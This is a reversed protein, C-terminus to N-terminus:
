PEQIRTLTEASAAAGARADGGSRSGKLWIIAPPSIQEVIDHPIGVRELEQMSRYPRGGLIKRAQDPTIGPLTELEELSAANLDVDKFYRV